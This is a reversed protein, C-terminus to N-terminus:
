KREKKLQWWLKLFKTTDSLHSINSSENGYITQVSVKSFQFGTWALRVLVESEWQFGQSKVTMAHSNKLAPLFYARYGCQSDWLSTKALSSLIRTTTKNSFIRPWPMTMPNFDRVGLIAGLQNNENKEIVKIFSRIDDASHQGDADMTIAWDFDQEIGWLFGTKLAKAKGQNNPHKIINVSYKEEFPISSSPSIWDTSGDDIVLIQQPTVYELLRPILINLAEFAQFTPILIFYKSKIM